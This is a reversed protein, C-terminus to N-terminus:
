ENHANIILEQGLKVRDAYKKFNFSKGGNFSNKMVDIVAGTGLSGSM